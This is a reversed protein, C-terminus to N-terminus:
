KLITMVHHVNRGPYPIRLLGDPLEVHHRGTLIPSTRGPTTSDIASARRGLRALMLWVVCCIQPGMLALRCVDLGM